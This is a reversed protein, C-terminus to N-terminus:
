RKEKAQEQKFEALEADVQKRIADMDLSKLHTVLEAIQGESLVGSQSFLLINDRFAMVTPISRIAFSSSLEQEKETNIKGFVVGPHQNSAKEFIPGFMKCPGCWSAWFDFIVIENKALVEQYNGKTIELASM